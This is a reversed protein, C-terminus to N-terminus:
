CGIDLLVSVTLRRKKCEVSVYILFPAECDGEVSIASIAITQGNTIYSLGSIVDKHYITRKEVARDAGEKKSM